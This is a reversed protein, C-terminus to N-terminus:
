DEPEKDLVIDLLAPNRVWDIGSGAVTASATGKMIRWRQRSERLAAELGDLETRVKSDRIDQKSHSQVKQSLDTVTEALQANKRAAM